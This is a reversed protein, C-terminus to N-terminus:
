LPAPLLELVRDVAYQQIFRAASLKEGRHFRALGVYLNTLAEGLLHDQSQAVALPLSKRPTAIAEDVDARKWVVRGPSFPIGALEDLDFVAMECFIGDAYLLKYGVDTNKFAYAVPHVRELWGLNDIFRRAHGPEVIVFFDLDSYADLRNMELGVSGLGILALGHDTAALSAGIADLRTLLEHPTPM